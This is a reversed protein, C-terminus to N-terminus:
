EVILWWKLPRSRNRVLTGCGDADERRAAQIGRLPAVTGDLLHRPRFGFPGAGTWQGLALNRALEFSSNQWRRISDRRIRVLLTAWACESM